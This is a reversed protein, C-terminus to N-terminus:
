AGIPPRNARLELKDVVVLASGSPTTESVVAIM